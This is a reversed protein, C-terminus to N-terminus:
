LRYGLRLGFTRPRGTYRVIVDPAVTSVFTAYDQDALNRVFVELTWRDGFGMGARADVVAYPNLRLVPINGLDANSSSQFTVNSGVFAERGRGVAWRYEAGGVLHWEPSLPFQEGGLDKL